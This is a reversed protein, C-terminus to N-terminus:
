NWQLGAERSVLSVVVTSMETINGRLNELWVLLDVLYEGNEVRKNTVKGRGILTDGIPNRAVHRWKYQRIFGDDGMWNTALRTMTKRSLAGYLFARPDGEAQASRDSLHRGANPYLLGTVPDTIYPSPGPGPEKSMTPRRPPINSSGFGFGSAGSEVAVTLISTPGLVVPSPQDGLNVDEWYRIDAGRIEEQVIISDVYEIEEPTYAYENMSWPKPGGEYFAAELYLKLTSVLEDKQNIHDFDHALISFKRPGKGDLRTVDKIQPRRRWVRFTDGPRVPKFFKWDEGVYAQYHFGVEPSARMGFMDVGFRYQYMPLAIIGAWRTNRAYEDDRWLPNWPDASFAEVKISEATAERGSFRAWGTMGDAVHNTDALMTEEAPTYVERIAM